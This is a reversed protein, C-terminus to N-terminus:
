HAPYAVNQVDPQWCARCDGCQNGQKKAPCTTSGNTVVTSTPLGYGTPAQGDIMHASLRVTLNAPKQNAKLWKMAIKYEKTPLWHQTDPTLRCVEAIKDLHDGDQIDGSDFWRFYEPSERTIADAMDTTWTPSNLMEDLRRDLANQVNQFQYRGKLAYCKSCVSGPVKRLASGVGCEKASINWAKGPMKSPNSLMGAM